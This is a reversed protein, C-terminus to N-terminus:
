FNVSMCLMPTFTAKNLADASTPQMHLKPKFKVSLDPSMSYSHIFKADIYADIIQLGWAGAFCLYYFQTDRQAGNVASELQNLTIGTKKYDTYLQYEPMDKSVLTANRYYKYVTLHQKYYRYNNIASGILTGLGAYIVPLKWWQHNYLQGYGPLM